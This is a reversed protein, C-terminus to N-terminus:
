GRRGERVLSKCPYWWFLSVIAIGGSPWISHGPFSPSSLSAMHGRWEHGSSRTYAIEGVEEGMRVV